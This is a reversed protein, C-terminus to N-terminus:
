GHCDGPRPRGNALGRDVANKALLPVSNLHVVEVLQKGPRLSLDLRVGDLEGGGSARGIALAPQPPRHLAAVLGLDHVRRTDGRPSM